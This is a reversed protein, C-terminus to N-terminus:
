GRALRVTWSPGGTRHRAPGPDICFADSPRRLADRLSDDAGCMQTLSRQADDLSAAQAEGDASLRTSSSSAARESPLAAGARAFDRAERAGRVFSGASSGLGAPDVRPRRGNASPRIGVRRGVRHPSRPLRPDAHELSGRFVPDSLWGTPSAASVADVASRALSRPALARLPQVAIILNIAIRGGRSTSAETREGSPDVVTWFL